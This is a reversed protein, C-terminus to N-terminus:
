KSRRTRSKTVRPVTAQWAGRDTPNGLCSYQLSNGKREGPSIGMGPISAPDGANCSAEKGDSGGLFGLHGTFVTLHIFFFFKGPLGRPHLSWLGGAPIFSVIHGGTGGAGRNQGSLRWHGQIACANQLHSPLRSPPPPPPPHTSPTQGSFVAAQPLIGLARFGPSSM